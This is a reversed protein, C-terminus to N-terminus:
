EPSVEPEVFVFQSATDPPVVVGDVTDKLIRVVAPTFGFAEAVTVNVGLAGVLTAATVMVTVKVPLPPPVPPPVSVALGFGREILVPKLPVEAGAVTAMEVVPPARVMALTLVLRILPVFTLQSLAWIKLAATLGPLGPLIVTV